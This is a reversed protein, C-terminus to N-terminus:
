VSIKGQRALKRSLNWYEKPDPGWANKYPDSDSFMADLFLIAGLVPILLVVLLWGQKGADHLRRVTAALTPIFMVALYIVAFLGFWIGNFIINAIMGSLLAILLFILNYLNFMIFELRSARGSFVSYKKFARLYWIM